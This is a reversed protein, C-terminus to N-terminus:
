ILYDSDIYSHITLINKKEIYSKALSNATEFISIPLSKQGKDSELNISIINTLQKKVNPTLSLDKLKDKELLHSILSDALPRYPEILDDVLTFPNLKNSHIIGLSPLLGAGTVARAVCARLITYTYNLLANIDNAGRDRIFEKGFLEKFYIQAAIAENNGSDGSKVSKSLQRLREIKKSQPKFWSLVISQNWIKKQIITKALQKQLPISASIQKRVREGNQWHNSCPTIISSPM